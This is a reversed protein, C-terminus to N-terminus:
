SAFRKELFIELENWSKLELLFNLHVSDVCFKVPLQLNISKEIMYKPAPFYSRYMSPRKSLTFRTQFGNRRREVPFGTLFRVMNKSRYHEM